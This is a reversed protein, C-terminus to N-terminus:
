DLGFANFGYSIAADNTGYHSTPLCAIVVNHRGISGLSYSNSDNIQWPLDRHVVDLMACAAAMETHLACIWAVHYDDYSLTPPAM